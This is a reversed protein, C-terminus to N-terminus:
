HAIDHACVEQVLEDMTLPDTALEVGRARLAQAFALPSPVGISALCREDGDGGRDDSCAFVEAPTGHAAISGGDLVIVQDALEAVDDMSHTVLLLTTGQGKLQRLLGRTRSRGVPDLGAMPEDLVLIPQRMALIGALAVGRQQGGSLAFPSRALLADTAPLGVAALAERIRADVEAEDLGLNRPGFAVDDRATEAFLQREPLQSVYGICRRLERRRALDATDVGNVRVTGSCPLKLACALEVTTSKGSGTHGVLATLSGRPVAFALDRIALDADRAANGGLPRRRPKKRPSVAHEYSFSVREFVLAAPAPHAAAEASKRPGQMRPRGALRHALADSLEDESATRPLGAIGRAELREALRTAFPLELGLSRVTERQAFVEAPTGELAIRGRELVVVRDARLADDMFHTVHVITISQARLREVITQIARRGETDLMAAPEDLLLIEPDMALAGAIAVRQKQGGSLDAPDAQASASMGVARLARDVRAAIEPQPIGLNEPGFAVDDAVVSTVMQDEPHQFVMAARRRIQRAGEPTKSDIGLIRAQGATPVLLANMLQLLTSKGSGNGGLICVHEGQAIRLSVGRLAEEADGPYRFHASDLEIVPMTDM